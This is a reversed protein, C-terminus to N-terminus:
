PKPNETLRIFNKLFLKLPGLWTHGGGAMELSSESWTVVEITFDPLVELSLVRHLLGAGDASGSYMWLSYLKVENKTM